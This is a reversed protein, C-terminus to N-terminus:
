VDANKLLGTAYWADHAAVMASEPDHLSRLDLPCPRSYGATVLAVQYAVLDLKGSGPTFRQVKSADSLRASALHSAQTVRKAPDLGQLLDSAPDVGMTTHLSDPNHDALAVGCTDARSVFSELLESDVEAPLRVSVPIHNLDAALEIADIVASAARDLQASDTFHEEPIWLDIGAPLLEMRRLLALLDRRASSGLDRPRITHLAASLQVYRFGHAAIGKLAGRVDIGYATTLPALTPALPLSNTGFEM